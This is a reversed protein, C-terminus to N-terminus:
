KSVTSGRVGLSNVVGEAMTPLRSHPLVGHEVARLVAAPGRALPGRLRHLPTIENSNVGVTAQAM